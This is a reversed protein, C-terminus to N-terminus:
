IRAKNGVFVALDRVSHQQYPKLYALEPYPEVGKACQKITIHRYNAYDRARLGFQRLLAKPFYSKAPHLM